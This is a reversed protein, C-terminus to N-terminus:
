DIMILPQFKNNEKNLMLLIPHTHGHITLTLYDSTCLRGLNINVDSNLLQEIGTIDENQILWALHTCYIRYCPADELLGLDHSFKAINDNLNLPDPPSKIKDWFDM